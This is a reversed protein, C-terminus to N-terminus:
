DASTNPSKKFNIEREPYIKNHMEAPIDKYDLTEFVKNKIILSEFVTRIHSSQMLCCM